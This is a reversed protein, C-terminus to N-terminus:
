KMIENVKDALAILESQSAFNSNGKTTLKQLKLIQKETVDTLGLNLGIRINSIHTFLEERTMLHASKLIAVSRCYADIFSDHNSVDLMKISETELDQLKSVMKGFENGVESESFGLNCTTSLIFIDKSSTSELNYGLKKINQRVQDIKGITNLGTLTFLCEMKLGTGIKTIDSMLYGYEDSYALTLKNALTDAIDKARSFVSPTYGESISCIQIHESDFFTVVTNLDDTVLLKPYINPKVILMDRLHTVDSKSATALELPKMKDKLAKEVTKVVKEQKEPELKPVFKYDKVNRYFKVVTSIVNNM